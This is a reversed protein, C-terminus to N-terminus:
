SCLWTLFLYRSRAIRIVGGAMGSHEVHEFIRSWEWTIEEVKRGREERSENKKKKAKKGGKKERRKLTRKRRLLGEVSETVALCYM